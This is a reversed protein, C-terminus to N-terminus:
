WMKRPAPKEITPSWLNSHDRPSVNAHEGQADCSCKLEPSSGAMWYTTWSMGARAKSRLRHPFLGNTAHEMHHFAIERVRILHVRRRCRPASRQDIPFQELLCRGSIDLGAVRGSPNAARAFELRPSM